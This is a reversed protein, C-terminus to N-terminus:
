QIYNVSSHNDINLKINQKKDTMNLIGGSNFRWNKKKLNIDHEINDIFINETTTCDSKDKVEIGILNKEFKSNSITSNTREGVSVGKDGNTKLETNMIEVNSSMLDIGDNGNNIFQSNMIKGNSIDIDIGDAYSKQVIINDLEFNNVYIIHINDDFLSSNTFISNKIKLDKVNHVSLQGTYQYFDKRYGSGGDINLFDISVNDSDQIIISGFPHKKDKRKIVVMNEKNGLIKIKSFFLSVDKDLHIITGPLITVDYDTFDKNLKYDVEGSLVLKKQPQKNLADIEMNSIIKKTKKVIERQYQNLYSISDIIENKNSLRTGYFNTHLPLKSLKKSIFNNAIDESENLFDEITTINNIWIQNIKNKVDDQQKLYDLLDNSLSSNTLYDNVKIKDEELKLSKQTLTNGFPGHWAMIDNVIPYVKRMWPDYYISFNHRNDQHKSQTLQAFLIFRAMYDLDFYKLFESNNSKNIKVNLFSKLFEEIFKKSSEDFHNNVADKKWANINHFGNKSIENNLILDRNKVTTKITFIDGPMRNYNRLIQEDIAEVFNRFELDRKNILVTKVETYPMMIKLKKALLYALENNIIAPHSIKDLDFKRYKGDILFDKSSKIKLSKSAHTYHFPSGGKHKLKVEEAHDNYKFLAKKWNNKLKSLEQSYYFRKDINIEIINENTDKTSFLSNFKNVTSSFVISYYNEKDLMDSKTYQEVIKNIKFNFIILHICLTLVLLTLIIKTFNFIINNKSYIM